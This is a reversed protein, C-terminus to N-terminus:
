SKLIEEKEKKEKKEEIESFDLDPMASLSSLGFHQLFEPTTTYLIPRGPGEARGGEEILGKSLLSRMVGDSNVGRVADVQPRTVPQQYAIISLAELAAPSLRTTADLNLFEQILAALEPATTLQVRGHQSQIRLGRTLLTKELEDLAARLKAPTLDLVTGLQTQSVPEAAVFLLAELKAILSIETNKKSDSM